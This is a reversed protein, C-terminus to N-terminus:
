SNWVAEQALQVRSNFGLKTYVHSLHTQVTRPSLFLLEAIDKNSLGQGVLRVVDLEARTLSAWGSTARKREGRGRRVYDIAEETSLAAGYAWASDFEADSMAAHLAALSNQYGAEYIMFRAAGTRRRISDAAGLLRAAERYGGQGGAVGGLCEFIDSLCSHAGIEAACTLADNAAREAQAPEGEAMAVRARTTLALALHWGTTESVADEACRRAATLDEGALAIQAKYSLWFTAARAEGSLKHWALDSANQATEFDGGALAVLAVTSYGLGLTYEGFAAARELAAEAVARAKSVDGQYALVDGLGKLSLPALIDAHTRQADATVFAALEGFQAAAGTLDGQWLQAYGLSLRCLRSNFRDGIADALDRGACAIRRAAVADGAVVAANSQWSLIRSLEWRDDAGQALCTAEAFYQGAVETHHSFSATLGCATLTRIVLTPDGVERAIELAQAAHDVSAAADVFAALVAADALARARVAAAVELPRGNMEALVAGFWARGETIRGRVLWLPQLCSALTLASESDSTEQLWTFAARLNELEGEAQLLLLDHDARGPEDLLAALATYHECHRRRTTDAEGAERLKELALQGVGEFRRYRTRGNSSDAVVLSKDVLLSLDGLVDRPHVDGFGAVAQAAELDFGGVFVGLRRFLVREPESLLGHSWELSARLTQQRPVATRAGGTLLRIKDQLGTSIEALSLTRVRAAALEIGLPQADLRQCIQNVIAANDDTVAFDPQALRARDAFLATADSLSMPPVRWTVEGRVKIPERSTVLLKLEPCARLMADLRPANADLVHECNDVLILMQRDSLHHLLVDMAASGPQDPLGLARAITMPAIAPDTISGLDVYRVGDAFQAVLQAAIQEALRSKGVGGSGILTVLRNEVVLGHAEALERDRGVFSTLHVPLNSVAVSNTVCLPPFENRLNPHCLQAVREFHVLDCLPASGRDTLWAQAPLQDIVLDRTAASLLTQGGRALGCLRAARDITPGVYNGDRSSQVEGTHIGIRLRVPALPAQQLQLACEVADEARKFAMVFSDGAGREVPTPPVGDLASAVDTLNQNLAAVAAAMEAPQIEWMRASGEIEAVLLTAADTLLLEGVSWDLVAPRGM